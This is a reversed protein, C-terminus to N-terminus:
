RWIFHILYAILNQRSCGEEVVLLIWFCGCRAINAKTWCSVHFCKNGVKKPWKPHFMITEKQITKVKHDPLSIRKKIQFTLIKRKNKDCRLVSIEAETGLKPAHIYFKLSYLYQHYLASSGECQYVTHDGRETERREQWWGVNKEQKEPRRRRVPLQSLLRSFKITSTTEGMEDNEGELM